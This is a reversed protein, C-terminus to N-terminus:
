KSFDGILTYKPIDAGLAPKAAHLPLPALYDDITTEVDDAVSSM